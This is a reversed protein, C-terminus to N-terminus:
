SNKVVFTNTFQTYSIPLILKSGFDITHLQIPLSGFVSYDKIYDPTFVVM